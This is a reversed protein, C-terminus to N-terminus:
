KQYKWHRKKGEALWEMMTSMRNNRTAERKAETIWEIYDRKASPALTDFFQKSEPHKDLEAQLYDPVDTNIEKKPVQIGKENLRVAEQIYYRVAEENIETEPTFHIMRNGKDADADEVFLNYEDKILAGKYFNISTFEKFKALWCILGKRAFCPVGWKWDEEIKPHANLIIGHLTELTQRIENEQEEFYNQINKNANPDIKGAM